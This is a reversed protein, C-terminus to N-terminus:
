YPGTSVKRNREMQERLDRPVSPDARGGGGDM